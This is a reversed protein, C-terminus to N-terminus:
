LAFPQAELEALDRKRHGCRLLGAAPYRLKPAIRNHPDAEGGRCHEVTRIYQVREVRSDRSQPQAVVQPLKEGVAGPRREAIHVHVVLGIHETEAVQHWLFHHDGAQHKERQHLELPDHRQREAIVDRAHRKLVTLRCARKHREAHIQQVHGTM